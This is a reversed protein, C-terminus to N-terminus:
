FYASINTRLRLRLIINKYLIFSINKEQFFLRTQGIKLKSEIAVQFTGRFIRM